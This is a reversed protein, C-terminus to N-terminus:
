IHAFVTPVPQERTMGIPIWYIYINKATSLVWTIKKITKKKKFLNIRYFGSSIV